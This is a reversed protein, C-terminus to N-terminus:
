QLRSWCPCLSHCPLSASCHPKSTCNARLVEGPQAFALVRLGLRLEDPMLSGLGIFALEAPFHRADLM